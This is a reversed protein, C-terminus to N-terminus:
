DSYLFENSSILAQCFNAMAQRLPNTNEQEALLSLQGKLYTVALETEERTPQRVYALRWAHVAQDALPAGLTYTSPKPPPKVADQSKYTMATGADRDTLSLTFENSFSDSTNAGQEDVITDIVDGKKVAFDVEYEVGGAKVKWHGQHGLRSSYVTVGVGDGNKSPCGLSGQVLLHGEAPAVFRRIPRTTKNQPHGGAATLFSLGAPGKGQGKGSQWRNGEFVTFRTFKVQPVKGQQQAAAAEIHGYGVRWVGMENAYRKLDFPIELGKVLEADAGAKAEKNVRDAMAGAYKLVTQSNMMLLAQLAVTSKVRQSCNVTMVPQDFVQLLAVPQTRRNQVYVSRRDPGSVSIQGADDAKLGVAAGFMETNLTGSASLIRDRVIEADLRQVTKHWYLSNSGDQRDGAVHRLSAQRYATSTMMLRHLDKMSWGSEVFHSAMWDLLKPHTPKTGLKGFEDPTTVIGRGFHHLWARNVLVRAVLPHRGNTLWRAFALRRGSTPVQPDDGTIAFRAGPPATVTLGGPAVEDRVQRHDGRHFLFTKALVGGSGRGDTLARVFDETPVKKQIKAIRPAYAKIEDAHKSNYQYLNGGSVNLNPYKKLLAKQEPTRKDGAAQKAQKLQSKLPEKYRAYEKDLALKIYKQQKANKEKNVVDIEKQVEARVARQADTYLSVRRQTPNRWAKWDLGPEFVARIRYYDVQSIPDYRHDHCQACGVSLGLLASSVIKITDSVVQNKAVAADPTGGDTGDAAMRLFGTAVLKQVQHPGLNKLPGVIMEDGALQEQIFRDFPMDLNFARIVYDRYKYAYPRVRDDNTYGESDAYGAVDLWHRGWREGYHDSELCSEILREYADARKDTIFAQAQEYTPPLGVLDLYVRRVLTLRDADKAFGLKKEKLRALVFSDVATRVREQGVPIPLAPRSIPQFAWWSREEPTIGLGEGIEKPEPRATKAGQAIWRSIKEIEEDSVRMDGPPMSGERLRKVLFSKGPDGAVIAPGSEGGALMLRALRLDLKGKKQKEAGHCDYCHSRFIPRIDSEFTLPKGEAAVTASPLCVASMVGVVLWVGSRSLGFM